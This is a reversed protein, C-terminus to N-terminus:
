IRAAARLRGPDWEQNIRHVMNAGPKSPPIRCITAGDSSLEKMPSAFGLGGPVGFASQGHYDRARHLRGISDRLESQMQRSLSLPSNRKAVPYARGCDQDNKTQLQECFHSWHVASSDSGGNLCRRKGQRAPSDVQLTETARIATEVRAQGRSPHTRSQLQGVRVTPLRWHSRVRPQISPSM